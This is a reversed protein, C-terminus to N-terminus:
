HFIFLWVCYYLCQFFYAYKGNLKFHQDSISVYTLVSLTDLQQTVHYRTHPAQTLLIFIGVCLLLSGPLAYTHTHLKVQFTSNFHRCLYLCFLICTSM